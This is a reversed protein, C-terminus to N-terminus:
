IHSKFLLKNERSATQYEKVLNSIAKFNPHKSDGTLQFLMSESSTVFAGSQKLRELALHSEPINMSSIGDSVLHVDYNNELLDLATQLVCVHAEIGLLVISTIRKAELSAQIEPLFMSFKTKPLVMEASSVDLESVTPGLRQPYQETIYIPVSLLKSVEMM